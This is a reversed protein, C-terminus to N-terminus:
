SKAPRPDNITVSGTRDDLFILQPRELYVSGSSLLAALRDSAAVILNTGDAAAELASAWLKGPDFGRASMGEPVMFSPPERVELDGGDVHVIEVWCLEAPEKISALVHSIENRLSMAPHGYLADLAGKVEAAIPYDTAMGILKEDLDKWKPQWDIGKPVADDKRLKVPHETPVGLSLFAVALLDKRAAGLRWLAEEIRGLGKESLPNEKALQLASAALDLNRQLSRAWRLITTRQIDPQSKRVADEARAPRLPLKEIAEVLAKSMGDSAGRQDRVVTYRRTTMVPHPCALTSPVRSGNDLYQGLEFRPVCATAVLEHLDDV